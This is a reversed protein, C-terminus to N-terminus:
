EQSGQGLKPLPAPDSSCGTMAQAAAGRAPAKLRGRPPQLVILLWPGHYLARLGRATCLVQM